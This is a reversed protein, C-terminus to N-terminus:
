CCVGYCYTCCAEAYGSGFAINLGDCLSNGFASNCIDCEGASPDGPQGLGGGEPPAGGGAVGLIKSIIDGGITKPLYQRQFTISIDGKLKKGATTLSPCTEGTSLTLTSLGDSPISVTEEELECSNGEQTIFAQTIQATGPLINRVKLIIQGESASFDECFLGSGTAIVCREPLFYGGGVIGHYSLFGLAVLVILIAWGYTMLFEMAAQAKQFFRQNKRFRDFFKMKQLKRM